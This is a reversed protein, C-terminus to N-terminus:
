GWALSKEYYLIAADYKQNLALALGLNLYQEAGPMRDAADRFAVFAREYQGEKLLATGLITPNLDEQIEFALDRVAKKLGAESAPEPKTEWTRGNDSRALLVFKDGERLRRWFDNRPAGM